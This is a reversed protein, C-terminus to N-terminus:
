PVAVPEGYIFDDMVAVDNDPGDDPGLATTGYAIRVRHVIPEAFAVGLFSLGNNAIPTKFQGLSKGAADFYEFATHDTDVDAYVAGFGRVVAPTNTGPVFFELDVINSGIPSFMREGSFATFINSYSDNIHGFRPSAASPNDGDASVVLGTGPTSLLAGRARPPKTDNFFDAVYTNPAALDDPVGDWNIERHGAPQTGPQGENNPMGLLQRYEDVKAQIDAPTAGAGIIVLAGAQSVPPVATPAPLAATPEPPATPVPVTPVITADPADTALAPAATPPLAAPTSGCASLILAVTVIALVFSNSIRM